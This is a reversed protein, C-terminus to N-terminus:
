EGAKMENWGSGRFVGQLLGRFLEESKQLSQRALQKQTEIHNIIEEFSTLAETRSM